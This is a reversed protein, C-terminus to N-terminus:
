KRKASKLKKELLALDKRTAAKLTKIAALLSKRVQAEAKKEIKKSRELAAAVVKEADKKNLNNKKVLDSVASEIEKRTRAYAGLGFQLGKKVINNM